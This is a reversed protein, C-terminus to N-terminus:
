VQMRMVEQYAEVLKNRMEALMQFSISAEEMAIVAQHPTTAGGALVDRVLAGATAQRAAVDRVAGHVLHGWSTAQGDTANLVVTPFDRQGPQDPIEFPRQLGPTGPSAPAPPLAQIAGPAAAIPPLSIM